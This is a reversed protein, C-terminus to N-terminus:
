RTLGWDLPDFALSVRLLFSPGFFLKSSLYSPFHMRKQLPTYPVDKRCFNIFFPFIISWALM